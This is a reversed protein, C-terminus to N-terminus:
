EIGYEALKDNLVRRYLTIDHVGNIRVGDIFVTPTVTIAARRSEAVDEAVEDAYKGSSLCEIFEDVDMNLQQAFSRFTDTTYSNSAFILNSYELFLGQDDACKGAQAALESGITRTIPVSRYVFRVRDGYEEILQNAVQLNFQKTFPCTYCGFQLFVIEADEPGVGPRDDHGPIYNQSGGAYSFLTIIGVLFIIALVGVGAKTLTDKRKQKQREQQKLKKYTKDKKKAM